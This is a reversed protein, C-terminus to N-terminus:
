AVHAKLGLRSILRYLQARSIGLASAAMPVRGACANLAHLIARRDAADRVLRLRMVNTSAGPEPRLSVDLDESGLPHGTFPPLQEVRALRGASPSAAIQGIDQQM